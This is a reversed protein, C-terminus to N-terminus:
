GAARLSLPRIDTWERNLYDLCAARSDPGFALAWGQPQALQAPWLSHQAEANRLVLFTLSDDDFPNIQDASM